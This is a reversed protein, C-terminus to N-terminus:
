FIRARGAAHKAAALVGGSFSPLERNQSPAARGADVLGFGASNLWMLM